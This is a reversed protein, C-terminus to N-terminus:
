PSIYRFFNRFHQGPVYVTPQGIIGRGLLVNYNEQGLSFLPSYGSNTPSYLGPTLNPTFTPPVYTGPVAGTAPFSPAPACQQYATPYVGTANQPLVPQRAAADPATLGRSGGISAAVTQAPLSQLQYSAQQFRPGVYPSTPYRGTPPAPTVHPLGTAFQQPSFRGDISTPADRRPQNQQNQQASSIARPGPNSAAPSAANMGTAGSPFGPLPQSAAGAGQDPLAYEPPLVPLGDSFSGQSQYYARQAGLPPQTEAASAGAYSAQSVHAGAPAAAGASWGGYQRQPSTPPAVPGQAVCSGCMLGFGCVAIVAMRGSLNM